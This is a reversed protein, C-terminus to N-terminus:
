VEQMFFLMEQKFRWKEIIDQLVSNPYVNICVDNFYAVEDEQYEAPRQKMDALVASFFAHRTVGPNAVYAYDNYTFATDTTSQM